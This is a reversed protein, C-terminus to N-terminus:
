RARGRPLHVQRGHRGVVGPRRVLRVGGLGEEARLGPPVRQRHLAPGQRGAAAHRGHGGPPRRRHGHGPGPRDRAQAARARVHRPGRDPVDGQRGPDIWLDAIKTPEAINNEALTKANYGIGTMGSQWPYHYDNNPDWTQGRLADRLNNSATRSTAGPRDARGLGQSIIKAAMWDTLVMLDWGTPLGGDLAPRITEFFTPNDGIKEEYDVEVGYKKQFDEITKSSGAPLVGTEADAETAQDIYAPWNAFKLPGTIAPVPTPSPAASPGGSAPPRSAPPPTPSAPRARPPSATGSGSGAGALFAALGSPASGSSAAGALRVPPAVPETPSRSGRAPPSSDEPPAIDPPADGGAQVVFTHDPSWTM